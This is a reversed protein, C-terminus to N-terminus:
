LLKELVQDITKKEIECIKGVGLNGLKIPGYSIRHLAVIPSGIHKFVVRIENKKGETLTVRLDHGDIEEIVMPRYKIGDVVM